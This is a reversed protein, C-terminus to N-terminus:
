QIKHEWLKEKREKLLLWRCLGHIFFEVAPEPPPHHNAPDPTSGSSDLKHSQCGVMLKGQSIFGTPSSLCSEGSQVMIAEIDSVLQITIDVRLVVIGQGQLTRLELETGDGISVVPKTKLLAAPM